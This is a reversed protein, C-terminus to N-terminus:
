ILTLIEYDALLKKTVQSIVCIIFGIDIFVAIYIIDLPESKRAVEISIKM